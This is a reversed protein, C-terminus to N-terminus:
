HHHGDHHDHVHPEAQPLTGALLGKIAALPDTESTSRVQVGRNGMKRTLVQTIM